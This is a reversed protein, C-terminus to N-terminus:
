FTHFAKINTSFYHLLTSINYCILVKIISQSLIQSSLAMLFVAFVKSSRRGFNALVDPINNFFARIPCGYDRHKNLCIALHNLGGAEPSLSSSILIFFNSRGSRPNSGWIKLLKGGMIQIKMHLSSGSILDFCAELLSLVKIHLNM